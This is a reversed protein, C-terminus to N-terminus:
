ARELAVQQKTAKEDRIAQKTSELKTLSWFAAKGENIMYINEICLKGRKQRKEIFVVNQLGKIRAQLISNEAALKEVLDGLKTVDYLLEIGGVRKVLRWVQCKNLASYVTSMSSISESTGPWESAVLKVQNLILDPNLFQLGTKHRCSLINTETFARRWTARFLGYFERKTIHCLGAM